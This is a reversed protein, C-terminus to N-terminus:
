QFAIWSSSFLFPIGLCLHTSSAPDSRLSIPVFISLVLAKSLVFHSDTM